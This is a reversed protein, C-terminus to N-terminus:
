EALASQVDVASDGIACECYARSKTQPSDKTTEKLSTMVKDLPEPRIRFCIDQIGM